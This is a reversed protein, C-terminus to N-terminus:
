GRKNNGFKILKFRSQIWQIESRSLSFTSYVSEPTVKGMEVDKVIDVISGIKNTYLVEKRNSGIIDMQELIQETLPITANSITALPNNAQHSWLVIRWAIGQWIRCRSLYNTMGYITECVNLCYKCKIDVINFCLSKKNLFFYHYLDINFYM